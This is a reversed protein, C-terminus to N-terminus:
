IGMLPSVSVLPVTGNEMRLLFTLAIGRGLGTRVRAMEITLGWVMARWTTQM